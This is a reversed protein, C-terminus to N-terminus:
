RLMSKIFDVLWRVGEADLHNTPEDLLLLNAQRAAVTRLRNGGLGFIIFLVHFCSIISITPKKMKPPKRPFFSLFAGYKMTFVGM